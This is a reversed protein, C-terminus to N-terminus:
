HAPDRAPLDFILRVDTGTADTQAFEIRDAVRTM